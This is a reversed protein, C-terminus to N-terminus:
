GTKLEDNDLLEVESFTMYHGPNMLSAIPNSWKFDREKLFDWAKRSIIPRESCHSCRPDVCKRFIVENSKRDVHKM